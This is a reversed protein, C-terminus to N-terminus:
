FDLLTGCILLTETGPSSAPIFRNYSKTYDHVVFVPAYRNVPSGEMGQALYFAPVQETLSKQSHACSCAMLIVLLIIMGLRPM